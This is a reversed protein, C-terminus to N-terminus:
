EFQLPVPRALSGIIAGARDNLSMTTAVADAERIGAVHDMSNFPHDADL